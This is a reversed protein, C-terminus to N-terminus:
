MVSKKATVKMWSTPVSTLANVAEMKTPNVRKVIDSSFAHSSFRKGRRWSTITEVVPMAIQMNTDPNNVSHILSPVVVSVHIGTTPSSSYTQAEMIPNSVMGQVIVASSNGVSIRPIACEIDGDLPHKGHHRHDTKEEGEEEQGFRVTLTQGLYFCEERAFRLGLAYRGFSRGFRGDGLMQYAAGAPFGFLCSM